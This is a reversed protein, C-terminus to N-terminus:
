FLVFITPYNGHDHTIYCGSRLVGLMPHALGQMHLLPLVLDFVASSGASVLLESALARRPTTM